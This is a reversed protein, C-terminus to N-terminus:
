RLEKRYELRLLYVICDYFQHFHGNTKRNDYKSILTKVYDIENNGGTHLKSIKVQKKITGRVGLWTKLRNKYLNEQNLGLVTELENKLEPHNRPPQIKGNQLSYRFKPFDKTKTTAPNPIHCLITDDKLNGCRGSTQCTALLNNYDIRLDQNNELKGCVEVQGVNSKFISKPKFHEIEVIVRNRDYKDIRTELTKQCYCCVFGTESALTNQVELLAAKRAKIEPEYLTADQAEVDKDDAKLTEFPDKDGILANRFDKLVQPEGYKTFNRM